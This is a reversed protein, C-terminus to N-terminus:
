RSITPVQGQSPPPSAIIATSHTCASGGAAQFSGLGSFFPAFYGRRERPPGWGVAVERAALEPAAGMRPVRKVRFRSGPGTHRPRATHEPAVEPHRRQWSRGRRHGPWERQPRLPGVAPTAPRPACGLEGKAGGRAPDRTGSRGSQNHRPADHTPRMPGHDGHTSLWVTSTPHARAPECVVSHRCAPKTATVNPRGDHILLLEPQHQHKADTALDPLHLVLLESM